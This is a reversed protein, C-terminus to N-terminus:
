KPSVKVSDYMRGGEPETWKLDECGEEKPSM